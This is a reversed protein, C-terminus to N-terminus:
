KELTWKNINETTFISKLNPHAKFKPNDMKVYWIIMAEMDQPSLKKTISLIHFYDADAVLVNKGTVYRYQARYKNIINWVAPNNHLLPPKGLKARARNAFAKPSKDKLPEYVLDANASEINNVKSEKVKSQPMKSSSNSLLQKATALGGQRGMKARINSVKQRHQLHDLLRESWFYKDDTKFLSFDKILRNLKELESRCGFCIGKLDSLLLKGNAEALKEVLMWYLGYGEWNMESIMNLVKPDQAANYDHSFYYTEKM